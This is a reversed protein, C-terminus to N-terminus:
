RCTNNPSSVHTNNKPLTLKSDRIHAAHYVRRFSLGDKANLLVLELRTSGTLLPLAIYSVPTAFEKYVVGRWM